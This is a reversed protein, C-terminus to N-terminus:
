KLWQSLPKKADPIRRLLSQLTTRKDFCVSKNAGRGGRKGQPAMQQRVLRSITMRRRLKQLPGGKKSRKLKRGHREQLRTAEKILTEDGKTIVFKPSTYKKRSARRSKKKPAPNDMPDEDGVGYKAALNDVTNKYTQVGPMVSSLLPSSLNDSAPVLAVRRRTKAPASKRRVM